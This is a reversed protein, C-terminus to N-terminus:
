GVVHGAVAARPTLVFAGIADGFAGGLYTDYKVPPLIIHTGPALLWTRLLRRM